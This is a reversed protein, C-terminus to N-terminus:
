QLVIGGGSEGADNITRSSGRMRNKIARFGSLVVPDHLMLVKTKTLKSQHKEISQVDPLPSCKRNLWCVKGGQHVGAVVPTNQFWRSRRLRGRVMLMLHTQGTRNGIQYGDGCGTLGASIDTRRKYGAKSGGSRWSSVEWFWFGGNM